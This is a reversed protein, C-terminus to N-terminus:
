KEVMLVDTTCRVLLRTRRPAADQLTIGQYAGDRNRQRGRMPLDRRLKLLNEHVSSNGLERDTQSNKLRIMFTIKEFEGIELNARDAVLTQLLWHCSAFKSIEVILHPSGQPRQERQFPGLRESIGCCVSTHDFDHFPLSAAQVGSLMIAGTPHGQPPLANM